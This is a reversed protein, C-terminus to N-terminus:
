SIGVISEYLEGLGKSDRRIPSREGLANPGSERALKEARRVLDALSGAGMKQM